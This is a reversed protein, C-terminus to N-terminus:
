TAVQCGWIHQRFPTLISPSSAVQFDFVTELHLRGGEERWLFNNSWADGHVLVPSIGSLPYKREGM